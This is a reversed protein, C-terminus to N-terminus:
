TDSLNPKNKYESYVILFSMGIGYYVVGSVGLEYHYCIWSSAGFFHGLIFAYCAILTIKSPLYKLLVFISFYYVLLVLIFFSGSQLAFYRFLENAENTVRPNSWYEKPHGSITLIGDIIASGLAVYKLKITHKNSPIKMM